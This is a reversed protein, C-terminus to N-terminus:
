ATANGNEGNVVQEASSTNKEVLKGNEDYEYKSPEKYANELKKLLGKDGEVNDMGRLYERLVGELHNAWLSNFADTQDDNVVKNDDTKCYNAFKLFYAGGIQYSSNLHFKENLIANNLNDMRHKIKELLTEGIDVDTKASKKWKETTAFMSDQSQKASVEKFAFRRRMAFDMSEVSRDIDNMTGIIYVNEPVFFHGHNDKEDDSIGLEIDFNNADKQLNAYQTQITTLKETGEKHKKLDEYKVRYGPDISYFLEGFIKSMEGRNIEDIIFVYKKEKIQEPTKLENDQKQGYIENLVAWYSSAHCGKIANRIDNNSLKELSTKDPFINALQTMRNFSVRYVRNSSSNKTKLIITNRESVEVIDMKKGTKLVVESIEGNEISEIYKNYKTEFNYDHEREEPTKKSDVLNKLAKECFKKFIGDKPEFGIDSSGEKNIPRLGEVFDTYDYSQHFQVFGIENEKCDMTKAIKKALYTKGTGPAGHLIINHNNELLQKVQKEFEDMKNEEDPKSSIQEINVCEEKLKKFIDMFAKLGIESQNWTCIDEIFKNQGETLEKNEDLSIDNTEAIRIRMGKQVRMENPSERYVSESGFKNKCVDVLSKILFKYSDNTIGNKKKNSEGHALWKFDCAIKENDEYVYYGNPEGWEDRFVDRGSDKYVNESSNLRQLLKKRITKVIDSM